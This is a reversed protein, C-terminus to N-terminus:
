HFLEFIKAAFEARGHIGIKACANKLHSRVTEVSVGLGNAMAQDSEGRLLPRVIATEARTLGYLLTLDPLAEDTLGGIWHMELAYVQSPVIAHARIILPPKRASGTLVVPRPAKGGAGVVAGAVMAQRDRSAACLVGARAVLVHGARLLEDAATNSVLITLGASVILRMNAGSDFWLEMLGSATPQGSM